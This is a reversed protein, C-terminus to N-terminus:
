KRLEYCYNQYRLVWQQLQYYSNFHQEYGVQISPFVQLLFPIFDYSKIKLLELNKQSLVQIIWNQNVSVQELCYNVQLKQYFIMQHHHIQRHILIQLLHLTISLHNLDQSLLTVQHLDLPYLKLQLWHKILYRIKIFSSLLM